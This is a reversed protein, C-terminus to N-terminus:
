FPARSRRRALAVAALGAGFAAYTAFMSLGGLHKEFGPQFRRPTLHYDVIYGTAATVAAEACIRPASKTAPDTRGFALEHATAWMVSTFFHIASGVATHRMTARRTYAEAEGWLWQSPGNLAAAAHGSEIQSCVALAAASTACAVAGPLLAARLATQLTQGTTEVRQTDM